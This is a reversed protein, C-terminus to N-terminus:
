NGSRLVITRIGTGCNLVAVFARYRRDYSIRREGPRGRLAREHHLRRNSRWVARQVRKDRLGTRNASLQGGGSLGLIRWRIDRWCGLRNGLYRPAIALYIGGRMSTAYTLMGLGTAVELAASLGLALTPQSYPAMRGSISCNPRLASRRYSDCGDHHSPRDCEEFAREM